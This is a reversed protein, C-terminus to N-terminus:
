AIAGGAVVAAAIGAGSTILAFATAAGGAVESAAADVLVGGAADAGLEGSVRACFVRACTM